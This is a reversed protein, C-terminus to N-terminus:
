DPPLGKELRALGDKLSVQPEWGTAQRLREVSAIVQPRSDPPVEGTPGGVSGSGVLATVERALDQLRVGEGRGLNFRGTSRQELILRLAEVVDDIYIYDRQSDPYNLNLRGGRRAERILSTALKEPAEGPGYPYFLRVWALPLRSVEPDTELFERLANKCRSYLSDPLTGSESEDLPSRSPAYEACTGLVVLHCSGREALQRAVRRSADLCAENEPSEWFAGPKAFWAAHLCADPAFADIEEWPMTELSGVVTEVGLKRLRAGAEPNRVVALIEHGAALASRVFAGGVFGSAGLVLIKLSPTM